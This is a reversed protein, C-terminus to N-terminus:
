PVKKSKLRILSERRDKFWVRHYDEEILNNMLMNILDQYLDSKPEIMKLLKKYDAMALTEIMYNYYFFNVTGVLPTILGPIHGTIYSILIDIKYPKYGMRNIIDSFLEAHKVETEATKLLVRSIYEDESKKAQSLYLDVQGVELSYFWNLWKILTNENM